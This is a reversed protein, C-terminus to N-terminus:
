WLLVMQWQHSPRSAENGDGEEKVFVIAHQPCFVYHMFLRDAGENRRFEGLPPIGPMGGRKYKKMAVKGTNRSYRFWKERGKRM